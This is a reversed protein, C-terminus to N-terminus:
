YLARMAERYKKPTQGCAKKFVNYFRCASGFGSELAVDLVALDTRTLLVQAHAVRLRTLYAMLSIGGKEKFLTSAYNPHLGVARAIEPVRLPNRYNRAIFQVMQVVKDDGCLNAAVRPDNVRGSHVGHRALSIALRRLRAEIELLVIERYGEADEALDQTWRRLAALDADAQTEDPEMILEGELVPQMLDAPLRRGLFWALPIHIYFFMSGPGIQVNQHPKAAWFVALRGPPLHVLDGGHLLTISGHEVFNFELDYHRHFGEWVEPKAYRCEFRSNVLGDVNEYAIQM